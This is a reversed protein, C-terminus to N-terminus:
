IQWIISYKFIDNNLHYREEKPSLISFAKPSLISPKKQFFIRQRISYPSFLNQTHYPSRFFVSPQYKQRRVQPLLRIIDSRRCYDPSTQGAATIQHHRVQPLLRSIDSRRCYDASTQGAATIILGILLCTWFNNPDSLFFILFHFSSSLSLYYKRSFYLSCSFRTTSTIFMICRRLHRRHHHHRM